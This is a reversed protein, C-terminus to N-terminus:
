YYGDESNWPGRYFNKHTQWLRKLTKKCKMHGPCKLNIEKLNDARFISKPDIPKQTIATIWDVKGEGQCTYCRRLEVYRQKFSINVFSAGLGNCQPCWRQAKILVPKCQQKWINCHEIGTEMTTVM